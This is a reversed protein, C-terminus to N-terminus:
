YSERRVFPKEYHTCGSERFIFFDENYQHVQWRPMELCNPGGTRWQKPLTGPELDAANLCAAVTFLILFLAARGTHLSCGPRMSPFNNNTPNIETPNSNTITM